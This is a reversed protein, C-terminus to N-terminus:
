TILQLVKNACKDVDDNIVTHEFHEAAALEVVATQLRKAQEAADETGRTSLRRVLEEWSPPLIFITLAEPMAKKVQM